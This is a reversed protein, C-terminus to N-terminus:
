YALRGNQTLAGLLCPEWEADLCGKWEAQLWAEWESHLFQAADREDQSHLCACVTTHNQLTLLM